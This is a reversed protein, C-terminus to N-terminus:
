CCDSVAARGQKGGERILAQNCARIGRGQTQNFMASIESPTLGKVTMQDVMLLLRRTRQRATLVGNQVVISTSDDLITIEKRIRDKHIIDMFSYVKTTLLIKESKCLINEVSCIKDQRWRRMRGSSRGNGGPRGLRLSLWYRAERSAQTLM